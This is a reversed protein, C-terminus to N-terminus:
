NKKSKIIDQKYKKFEEDSMHLLNRQAIIKQIANKSMPMPHNEYLVMMIANQMRTFEPIGEEPSYKKEKVM